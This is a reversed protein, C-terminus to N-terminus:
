VNEELLYGQRYLKGDKWNQMNQAYASDTFVGLAFNQAKGEPLYISQLNSCGGFANAGLKEIGKHISVAYIKTNGEFAKEAIEKVAFGGMISPIVLDGDTCTGMGTVVAYPVGDEDTYFKFKLGSSARKRCETCVNDVMKHGSSPLVIPEEAECEVCLRLLYGNEVCEANKLSAIEWSHACAVQVPPDGEADPPVEPSFLAKIGSWNGLISVVLICFLLLSSSVYWVIPRKRKRKKQLHKKLAKANKGYCLIIM